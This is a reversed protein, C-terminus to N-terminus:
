PYTITYTFCPYSPFFELEPFLFLPVYTIPLSYLYLFLIITRVLASTLYEREKRISAARVENLCMGLLTENMISVDFASGGSDLANHWEMRVRELYLALAAPGDPDSAFHHTDLRFFFRAWMAHADKGWGAHLVCDLFKYSGEHIETLLLERDPRVRKLPLPLSSPNLRMTGDSSTELKLNDSTSTTLGQENAEARGRMTFYYLPVHKHDRLRQLAIRAVQFTIVDPAAKEHDIKIERKSHPMSETEIPENPADPHLSQITSGSPSPPPDTPRQGTQSPPRQSPQSMTSTPHLADWQVCLADHKTKWTDALVKLVGEPNMGYSALLAKETDYDAHSFDPCTEGHPDPFDTTNTRSNSPSTSGSM